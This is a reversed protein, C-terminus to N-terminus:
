EARLVRAPDARAARRAPWYSACLVVIALAASAGAFPGPELPEVGWVIGTMASALFVALVVGALLGGAAIAGGQRVLLLVVDRPSAGLALRMGIEHSRREAAYSVLAYVGVCALLLAIAAFGGMMEGFFRQEWTTFRRRETMPMIEYLPAGAELQRLAGRMPQILSEPSGASRVLLAMTRFATVGQPLYLTLSSAETDEGVEEYQIDPAVGIVRHWVVGDPGRIGLRRDPASLQPWLRRALRENVIAVRGDPDVAESATFTRGELLPVDLVDFFGPTIGVTSALIEDGPLTRDEAVIQVSAGGDDGPIASTAAAAVAGPLRELRDIATQFFVARARPEDYAEGALYVRASLLPRDDFGLDAGQLALFSRIMLSAGVLLALCLAVQVVALASQLRQAGRGLSTGRGGEKLDGLVDRRSARLAPAMGTALTTFLALGAAFMAARADVEFRIWYPLEEPFSRWILDVAWQAALLGLAAGAVSLVLTESLMATVLRWRTAGLAARVAAERQRAAGRVFLLNALNACAILLVFGVSAMLAASVGRELSGVQSDRFRLVRLGRGRNTDPYAEEFRAAMADLERQAQDVTVGDALLGIVDVSRAGRPAEDWRLPLYIDDREPFRFGPPMVGVVTRARGDVLIARGVIGPDGGYRRQWLGHTLMVVTELGPARGEEPLFGRGLMPRVGLLDFLGPTVSGGRVREASDEGALTINRAMYAGLADFSRASEQLDRFEPYSLASEGWGWDEPQARHASHVTVVRDSRDGFPLPRLLIANVMSFVTVNAAIGLALTAIAGAAFAPQSALSRVARSIDHHVM